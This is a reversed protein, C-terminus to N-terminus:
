FIQLRKLMITYKGKRKMVQNFVLQLFVLQYAKMFEKSLGGFIENFYKPMQLVKENALSFMSINNKTYSDLMVSLEIFTTTNIIFKKLLEEDKVIHLQNLTDTVSKIINNRIVKFWELSINGKLCRKCTLALNYLDDENINQLIIDAIIPENILELFTYSNM